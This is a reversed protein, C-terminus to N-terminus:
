VDTSHKRDFTKQQISQQISEKSHERSRISEREKLKKGSGAVVVTAGTFSGGKSGHAEFWTGRIFEMTTRLLRELSNRNFRKLTRAAGTVLTRAVVTIGARVAGEAGAGHAHRPEVFWRRGVGGVRVRFTGVSPDTVTRSM